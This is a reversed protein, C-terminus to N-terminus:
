RLAMLNSHIDIIDNDLEYRVDKRGSMFVKIDNSLHFWELHVSHASFMDHLAKEYGKNGHIVLSLVLKHPNGTQLNYLRKEPKNATYGIKVFENGQTVFYIM